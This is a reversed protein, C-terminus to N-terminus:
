NGHHFIRDKDWQTRTFYRFVVQPLGEQAFVKKMTIKDMGVASALVGAGVYPINAMEFLGQITGDEGFTGHLLPFVVDITENIAKTSSVAAAQDPLSNFVPMLAQEPLLM